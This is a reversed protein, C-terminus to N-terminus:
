KTQDLDIPLGYYGQEYAHALLFQWYTMGAKAAIFYQELARQENKETGRGLAFAWGLKGASYASGHDAEQQLTLFGERQIAPDDSHFVRLSALMHMAGSHGASAPAELVSRAKQPDKETGRGTLYCYAIQTAIQNKLWGEPMADSVQELETHAAFIQDVFEEGWQEYSEYEQPSFQEFTTLNECFEDDALQALGAIPLILFFITTSIRM